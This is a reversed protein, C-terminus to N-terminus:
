PRVTPAAPQLVEKAIRDALEGVARAMAAVLAADDVTGPGMAPIEFVERPAKKASHRDKELVTWDVTLVCRGNPWLDLATVNVIIQRMAKEDGQDLAIFDHPLRVTLAASLADTFGKSLREGWRASRSVKLEHPGSRLLLDTTDLYDPLLVPQLEVAPLGSDAPTDSTEGAPPTLVFTRPAPASACGAGLLLSAAILGKPRKM